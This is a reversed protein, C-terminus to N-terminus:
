MKEKYEELQKRLNIIERKKSKPHVMIAKESDVVIFYIIKTIHKSLGQVRIRESVMDDARKQNKELESLQSKEKQATLPDLDGLEIDLKFSM